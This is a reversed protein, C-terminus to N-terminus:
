VDRSRDPHPAGGGAAAYHPELWRARGSRARRSCVGGPAAAVKRELGSEGLDQKRAAPWRHADLHLKM